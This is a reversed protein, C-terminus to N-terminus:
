RGSEAPLGVSVRRKGSATRPISGVPVIEVLSSDGFVKRVESDILRRSTDSLPKALVVSLMVQDLRKQEAQFEQVEPIDKMLHPFFEGPVTRGSATRLMELVRGEISEILGLGRGCPCARGSLVGVDGIEYRLFPMGHNHLDTILIGSPGESPPRETEVLLNEMNIHLGLRHECEAAISMFERSGYTNFLPAGLAKEVVERTSQHLPEAAALAARIGPLSRGRALLYRSFELLSSVYGVIVKPQLRLATELVQGWLTESQSFTSLVVENRVTRLLQLKWQQWRPTEGVPGGWLFLTPEGLRHGSWSYARTSVASRWDYSPFTIYFRTPQGSSGGTAYPIFRERWAESKLEERHNRIEERTLPPLKSFDELSRVDGRLLGAAKYKRKLFPVHGFAIDLLPQLEQWQFERLREAPWWQSKEVLGRHHAYGRGKLGYYG